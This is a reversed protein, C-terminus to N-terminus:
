AARDDLGMVRHRAHRMDDFGPRRHRPLFTYMGSHGAARPRSALPGAPLISSPLCPCQGPPYTALHPPDRLWLWRWGAVGRLLGSMTPHQNDPGLIRARSGESRELAGPKPVVQVVERSFAAPSGGGPSPPRPPAVASLQHHRIGGHGCDDYARPPSLLNGLYAAPM